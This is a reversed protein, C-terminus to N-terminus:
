QLRPGNPQVVINYSQLLTNKAEELSILAQLYATLARIGRSRADSLDQQFQLVFFLTSLGVKLKKEEAERQKQALRSAARSAQVLQSSAMVQRVAVRVDELINEELNKITLMQQRIALQSQQVRSKGRRNGLPHRFVLGVEWRHRSLRFQELSGSFDRDIGNLQFSGQLDLTPLAQNKNFILTINQNELELKAQILDHRNELAQRIEEEQKLVPSTFIPTDTPLLEIDAFEGLLSFNMIRKLRDETNKVDNDAQIIQEKVRAIDTEAQLVEIPALTGVEVQRRVQALLRQNLAIQQQRVELDQRRFVLEWYTRQVESTSAIIQRRFDEQSIALNNQAILIQNKTVIIGFDRLLPQTIKLEVTREYFEARPTLNTPDELIDVAFASTRRTTDLHAASVEIEYTGGYPTLQSMGVSLEQEQSNDQTVINGVVREQFLSSTELLRADSAVFEATGEVDFIGQEETTEAARIRPTIGVIQIDLNNRLAFATAEQLSLQMQRRQAAAPLVTGLAVYCWATSMVVLM